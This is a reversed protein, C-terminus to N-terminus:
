TGVAVVLDEGDDTRIGAVHPSFPWVTMVAGSARREPKVLQRRDEREWLQTDLVLGTVREGLDRVRATM